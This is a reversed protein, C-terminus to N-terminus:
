KGSSERRACSPVISPPATRLSRRTSSIFASIFVSEPRVCPQTHRFIFFHRFRRRITSIGVRRGSPWGVGRQAGYAFPPRHYLDTIEVLPESVVLHQLADGEIDPAALNHDEDSGATGAFSSEKAADIKKFLIVLTLHQNVTLQYAVAILPIPPNAVALAVDAAHPCLHAHDELMEMQPGM